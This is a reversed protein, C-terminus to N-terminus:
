NAVEKIVKIYKPKLKKWSFNEAQKIPKDNWKTEAAKLLAESFKRIDKCDILIGANGVVEKRREDKQTVVPLGSAMAETYVNGFAEHRSANIFVNSHKYLKLLDERPVVGVYKFREALLNNGLRIIEDKMNGSSTQIFTGKDLGAIAKIILDIRKFEVIASTSLFIPFELGELLKSKPKSKKYKDIDIGVPLVTSRVNRKSYIDRSAKTLFSMCDPKFYLNLKEERGGGREFAIFPTESKKRYKNCWFSGPFGSNNLIIDYNKKLDAMMTKYWRKCFYHSELYARGNRWPLKIEDRTKTNLGFSHDTEGIGYVDIDFTDKLVDYMKKTYIEAGRNIVGYGNCLLAVKTM